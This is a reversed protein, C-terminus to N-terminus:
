SNSQTKEYLYGSFNPSNMAGMRRFIEEYTTGPEIPSANAAAFKKEAKKKELYTAIDSNTIGAATCLDHICGITKEKTADRDRGNQLQKRLLDDIAKRKQEVEFKLCSIEHRLNSERVHAIYSSIMTGVVGTTGIAILIPSIDSLVTM